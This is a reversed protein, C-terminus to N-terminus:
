ICYYETIARTEDIYSIGMDIFMKYTEDFKDGEPIVIFMGKRGRSLLIRYINKLIAEPHEFLIKKNQPIIMEWKGNKFYFDGGFLVFPWDLELGQCIFESAAINMKKCDNTFWTYAKDPYMYSEQITEESIIPLDNEEAFSSVLVGYTENTLGTQMKKQWYSLHRCIRVQFGKKKAANLLNKQEIRSKNNIVSEIWDSLDIFNNRIATSLHLEKYGHITGTVHLQPLVCNSVNYEWDQHKEIADNWLKLGQEEGEHIAQGIGYLCLIVCSGYEAKVRDGFQLLGEIESYNRKMKKKDWARQSEDFVIVGHQPRNQKHIFSNKFTKMGIVFPCDDQINTSGEPSLITQLYNILPDNGSIYVSPPVATKREFAVQTGLYTKGSGPVGDVIIVSKGGTAQTRDIICNIFPLSDGLDGDKLYRLEQKRGETYLIHVADMISPITTTESEIWELVNANPGHGAISQSIIDTFNNWGLVTGIECDIVEGHDRTRVLYGEVDMHNKLTVDHSTTLYHVYGNTQVMENERYRETAKFVLVIVKTDLLIIVDTKRGNRLPLRYEFLFPLERAEPTNPINSKLFQFCDKFSFTYGDIKDLDNREKDECVFDLIDNSWSEWETETSDLIQSATLIKGVEM